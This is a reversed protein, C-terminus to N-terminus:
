SVLAQCSRFMEQATAEIGSQEIYSTNFVEASVYPEAGILDLCEFLQDFNVTGAGPLLRGSMAELRLGSAVPHAATDSLQLYGIRNGPISALLDPAPGGPQRVWHWSDLLIGAGPGLPEVLSWASALDPIGSWPLFELCVQAGVDAAAAVLRGLNARAHDIDDVSPELVVAVIRSSGISEATRSLYKAEAAADGSAGNAWITAAEIADCKLDSGALWPVHQIWASASIFGAETACEGAAQIEYPTATMPRAMLTAPCIGFASGAYGNQYNQLAM